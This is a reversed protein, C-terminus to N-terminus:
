STANAIKAIELCQSSPPLGLLNGLHARGQRPIEDLSPINEIVWASLNKEVWGQGVVEPNLYHSIYHSISSRRAIPHGSPMNPSLYELKVLAAVLPYTKQLSEEPIGLVRALRSDKSVDDLTKYRASIYDSIDTTNTFSASALKATGHHNINTSPKSQKELM